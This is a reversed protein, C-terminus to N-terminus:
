FLYIFLVDYPVSNVEETETLRNKCALVLTELVCPKGVALQTTHVLAIEPSWM